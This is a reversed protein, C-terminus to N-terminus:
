MLPPKDPWGDPLIHAPGDPAWRDHALREEFAQLWVRFLEGRDFRETERRGDPHIVVAVYESTENDYRTELSLSVRDRKYFWVM